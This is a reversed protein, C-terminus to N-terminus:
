APLTLGDGPNFAQGNRGVLSGTLEGNSFNVAFSSNKVENAVNKVWGYYTEMMSPNADAGRSAMEAAKGIHTIVSGNHAGILANRLDRSGEEGSNLGEEIKYMLPHDGEVSITGDNRVEIEIDTDASMGLRSMFEKLEVEARQMHVASDMTLESALSSLTKASEAAPSLTVTVADGYASSAQPQTPIPKTAQGTSAYATPYISVNNNTSNIM